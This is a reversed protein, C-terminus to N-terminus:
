INRNISEHGENSLRKGEEKSYKAFEKIDAGAVFAKEGTGTIIICKIERDLISFSVAKSLELITNTNLANLQKPRNIQIYAINNKAEFLINNYKM